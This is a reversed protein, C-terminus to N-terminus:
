SSTVNRNYWSINGARHKRILESVYEHKRSELEQHYTAKPNQRRSFCSNNAIKDESSHLKTAANRTTAQLILVLNRSYPPGM